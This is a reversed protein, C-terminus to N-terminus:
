LGRFDLVLRSSPLVDLEYTEGIRLPQLSYYLKYETSGSSLTVSQNLYWAGFAPSSNKVVTGVIHTPKEGRLIRISDGALPLPGSALCLLGFGIFIARVTLVIGTRSADYEPGKFSEFTGLRVLMRSKPDLGWWLAAGTLVLSTVGVMIPRTISKPVGPLSIVIYPLVVGLVVITLAVAKKNM